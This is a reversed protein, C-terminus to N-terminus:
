AHTVTFRLRVPASRKEAASTATIILEYTGPGLKDRRTSRATVRFDGARHHWRDQVERADDTLGRRSGAPTFRVGVAIRGGGISACASEEVEYYTPAGSYVVVNLVRNLGQPPDVV